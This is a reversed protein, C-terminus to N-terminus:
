AEARAMGRRRLDQPRDQGGSSPCAYIRSAENGSRHEIRKCSAVTHLLDPVRIDLGMLTGISGMLGQTQRLGLRYATRLTLCTEIALDSYRRQGGRSTRRPARWVSQAEESVWITLDGRQRLSENYEAWNIVRYQAKDFKHRRAANFKHPMWTIGQISFCSSLADKPIIWAVLDHAQVILSYEYDDAALGNHMAHKFAERDNSTPWLKFIEDENGVLNEDNIVLKSLRKAVGKIGNDECVYQVADLLLQLTTLRQQGDIVERREVDRTATHVQQVVVAGLFHRVTGQEAKVGDGNSLDLKEVYDDATNRVDEWLPEWQDDQTWVYRRQFAPITYRIDKQFLAKPSLISTDM